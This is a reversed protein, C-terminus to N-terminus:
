PEIGQEEHMRRNLVIAQALCLVKDKRRLSRVRMAFRKFVSDPHAQRRQLLWRMVDAEPIRGDRQPLLNGIAGEDCPCHAFYLLGGIASCHIARTSGVMDFAFAIRTTPDSPLWRLRPSNRWLHAIRKAEQQVEKMGVDSSCYDESKLLTSHEQRSRDYRVAVVARGLASINLTTKMHLALRAESSSEFVHVTPYWAAFCDRTVIGSKGPDLSSWFRRESVIWGVAALAHLLESRRLIRDTGADQTELAAFIFDARREIPQKRASNQQRLAKTVAALAAKGDATSCYANFQRVWDHTDHLALLDHDEDMFELGGSALHHRYNAMEVLRGAQKWTWVGRRRCSRMAHQQLWEVLSSERIRGSHTPDLAQIALPVLKAPRHLLRFITAMSAVPVGREHVEMADSAHSFCRVVGTLFAPSPHLSGDNHTQIRLGRLQLATTNTDARGRAMQVFRQVAADVEVEKAEQIAAELVSKVADTLGVRHRFHASMEMQRAHIAAANAVHNDFTEQRCFAAQCELCQYLPPFRDRFALRAQVQGLWKERAIMYRLAEARRQKAKGHVVRTWLRKIRTALPRRQPALIHTTAWAAFEKFSLKGSGSVDLADFTAGTAVEGLDRAIDAFERRDLFGSADLDYSFFLHRLRMTERSAKSTDTTASNLQKVRQVEQHLVRRGSKTEVYACVDDAVSVVAAAVAKEEMSMRLAEEDEPSGGKVVHQSFNKDCARQHAWYPKYLAFAMGCYVCAFRPPETRRFAVQMASTQRLSEDHYLLRAAHQSFSADTWRNLLHKMSLKMKLFVLEPRDLRRRRGNHRQTPATDLWNYFEDFDVVGNHDADIAALADQLGRRDIAIGLEDFLSKLERSDMSGSGDVDYADFVDRVQARRREVPPLHKRAATREIATAKLQLTLRKRRTGLLSTTSASNLQCEFTAMKVAVNSSVFARERTSRAAEDRELRCKLQRVRYRALYGRLWRDKTLAYFQELGLRRRRKQLSHFELVWARVLQRLNRVLKKQQRRVHVKKCALKKRMATQIRVRMAEKHRNCARWWRQICAASVHALWRKKALMRRTHFGRYYRQVTTSAAILNSFRHRYAKAMSYNFGWSSKEKVGGVDDQLLKHVGAEIVAVAAHPRGKALETQAADRVTAATQEIWTAELEVPDPLVAAGTNFPAANGESGDGFVIDASMEAALLSATQDTWMDKGQHAYIAKQIRHQMEISYKAAGQRLTNSATPLSSPGDNPDLVLDKTLAVPDLQDTIWPDQSIEQMLHDDLEGAVSECKTPTSSAGCAVFTSTKSEHPRGANLAVVSPLKSTTSSITTTNVINDLSTSEPVAVPPMAMCASAEEQWSKFDIAGDLLPFTSPLLEIPNTARHRRKGPSAMADNNSQVHFEMADAVRRVKREAIQASTLVLKARHAEAFLQTYPSTEKLTGVKANLSLTKPSPGHQPADGVLWRFEALLDISAPEPWEIKELTRM